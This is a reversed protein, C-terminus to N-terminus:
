SAGGPLATRQRLSPAGRAADRTTLVRQGSKGTSRAGGCKRPVGMSKPPVQSDTLNWSEFEM